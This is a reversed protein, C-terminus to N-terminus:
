TIQVGYRQRLVLKQLIDLKRSLGSREVAEQCRQIEPAVHWGAKGTAEVDDLDPHRHEAVKVAVLLSREATSLGPFLEAAILVETTECRLDDQIVTLAIAKCAQEEALEIRRAAEADHPM